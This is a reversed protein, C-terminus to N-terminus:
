ILLSTRADHCCAALARYHMASEPAAVKLEEKDQHWVGVVVCMIGKMKVIEDTM